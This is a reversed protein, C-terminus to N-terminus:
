GEPLIAPLPEELVLVAFTLRSDFPAPSSTVSSTSFASTGQAAKADTVVLLSSNWAGPSTPFDPVKTSSSQTLTRKVQFETLTVSQVWTNLSSALAM